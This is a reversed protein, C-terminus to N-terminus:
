AATAADAVAATATAVKALTAIAAVPAAVPVIPSITMSAVALADNLKAQVLIRGGDTALKANLVRDFVGDFERVIAEEGDLFLEAVTHISDAMGAYDGTSYKHLFDPVRKLGYAELKGAMKGAANRRAVLEQDKSYFWKVIFYALLPITVLLAVTEFNPNFFM